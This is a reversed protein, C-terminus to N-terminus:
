RRLEAVGAEVLQEAVAEATDKTTVPEKGTLDVRVEGEIMAKQIITAVDDFATTFQEDTIVDTNLLRLMVATWAMDLLVVPSNAETVATGELKRETM